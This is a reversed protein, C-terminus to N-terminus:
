EEYLLMVGMEDMAIGKVSVTDHESLFENIVKEVETSNDKLFYKKYTTGIRPIKWSYRIYIIVTSVLQYCTIM